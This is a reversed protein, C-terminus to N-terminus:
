ETLEEVHVIPPLVFEGKDYIWGVGVLDPCEIAEPYYTDIFEQDAVIINEVLNQIVIAFKAM